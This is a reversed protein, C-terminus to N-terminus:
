AFFQPLLGLQEAVALFMKGRTGEGADAASCLRVPM